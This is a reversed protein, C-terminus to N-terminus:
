LDFHPLYNEFITRIEQLQEEAERGHRVSGSPDRVLNKGVERERDGYSQILDMLQELTYDGLMQGDSM